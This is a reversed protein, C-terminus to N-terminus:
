IKAFFSFLFVDNIIVIWLKMLYNVTFGKIEGLSILGFGVVSCVDTDPWESSLIIKWM